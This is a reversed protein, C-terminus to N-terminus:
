QGAPAPTPNVYKSLVQQVGKQVTQLAVQPDTGQLTANVGDEWYKIMEDNLGADLTNSELFWFKYYPGQSVFAGTLPDNVLEQSLDVRSYPEGFLRVQSAAQYSQKEVESSSLFKAFEWSEKSYKTKVSVGNGWFNAWAVQKGALQPVPVIKFKLNPNAQRLEHARWSPAFYFGVRGQAFAQTSNPMTVDWTKHKPDTIFGTYFRLVEAVNSSAVNQFNINPEQMLLLGLIDSWHDINGTSGIAAGATKIQGNQERVTMKTAEDIFEQWNKPPQGGIGQLIDENYYLGLGDIEMPVGYIQNNKVFSDYAVPYFTSKYENLSLVNDPVPILDGDFMPLWSNHIMLVDPGVGERLQTQVRTRYNISSQKVYNVSIGPYKQHFQELIPKILSDDEWLGWYTLTVPGSAIKGNSFQPGFRWVAFAIVVVLALVAIIIKQM